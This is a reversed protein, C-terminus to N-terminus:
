SIVCKSKAIGPTQIPAVQCKKFSQSPWNHTKLCLFCFEYNCRKCTMHKCGKIHEIILSCKPCARLSPCQKGLLYITDCEVLIRLLESNDGCSSNGCINTESGNWEHLCHWCFEFNAEGKSKCNLCAVRKDTDLLRHCNVLCTPCQKVEANQQNMLLKQEFEVTEEETLCAAERILSFPWPSNCEPCCIKPKNDELQQLCHGALSLPAIVIIFNPPSCYFM